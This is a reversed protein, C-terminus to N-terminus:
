YRKGGAGPRLRVCVIIPLVHMPIYVIASERFRHKTIEQELDSRTSICLLLLLVVLPTSPFSLVCFNFSLLQILATMM